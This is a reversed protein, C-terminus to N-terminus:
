RTAQWGTRAAIFRVIRDMAQAAEPLFSAMQFAHPTKPWLELEVDVGAEHARQATRVAEDRLIETSGAQLFLPPFGSFDAFLPSADPHSYLEPSPLYRRRLVMLDPLSLMPDQDENDVISRSELTCDVAPSLLVACAPLPGHARLTRHLTVLALNGGASDGLFVANRADCGGALLGRYAALCDDPAAPFPHEPALRYDPILARAGLRRCLRAAFAAHANPFRFAFSGGHLYFITRGPLSEPVSVWEAKVGGCVIAERVVNREPAFYRADLSEYRRRLAAIDADPGLPERMATRILASLMRSRWSAPGEITRVPLAPSHRHDDNM